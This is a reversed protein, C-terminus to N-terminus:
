NEEGDKREKHRARRAAEARALWDGYDAGDLVVEVNGKDDYRYLQKTYTQIVYGLLDADTQQNVARLNLIDKNSPRASDVDATIFRPYGNPNGNVDTLYRGPRVHGHIMAAPWFDCLHGFDFPVDVNSVSFNSVAWKGGLGASYGGTKIDRYIAGGYEIDWKKTDSAIISALALVDPSETIARDTTSRRDALGTPDYRLVPNNRAYGYRNWTLPADLAAPHRDVSLFRGMNPNYYRAHMYDLYDANETNLSGYFEREHGTYKMPDSRWYGFNSAEQVSSTQEMGFPLFDNRSYRLHADNTIMRVSGLHDLHFHRKGGWFQETEAGVLTGGAYVYDETWEWAGGGVLGDDQFERLVKGNFDRITWRVVTTLEKGIREDDATYIMRRRQGQNTVMGSMAGVSDFEYTMTSGNSTVNGAADYSAGIIRNNSPDIPPITPNQGALTKQRLNGFSDYEYSETQGSVVAQVLRNATDYKYTDAGIAKINGSPDYLFAGTSWTLDTGAADDSHTKLASGAAGDREDWTDLPEGMWVRQVYAVNKDARLNRAAAAPLDIVRRNDHRSIVKGGLKAVDPEHITGPTDPREDVVKLVLIYRGMGPPLPHAADNAARAVIPGFFLGTLLILSKIHTKV